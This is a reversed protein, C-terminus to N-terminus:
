ICRLIPLAVELIMRKYCTDTYQQHVKSTLIGISCANSREENVCRPKTGSVFVNAWIWLTYNLVPRFSSILAFQSTEGSRVLPALETSLIGSGPFRQKTRRVAAKVPLVHLM